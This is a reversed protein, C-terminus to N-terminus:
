TNQFMQHSHVQSKEWTYSRRSSIPTHWGHSANRFVSLYPCAPPSTVAQGLSDRRQSVWAPM